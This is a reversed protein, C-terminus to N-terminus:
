PQLIKQSRPHRTPLYSEPAERRIVAVRVCLGLRSDQHRVNKFGLRFSLCPGASVPMGLYHSDTTHGVNAGFSDKLPIPSLTLVSIFASGM